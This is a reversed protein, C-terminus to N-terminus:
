ASRRPKRSAMPRCAQTIEQAREEGIRRPLTYTWYESGYLGGMSKYHPNLVVGEHAFVHDAALGPMVRGAGANGRFAAIVLHSMTTIIKM